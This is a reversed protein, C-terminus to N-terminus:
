AAGRIRDIIALPNGPPADGRWAVHGDPRVLVLCREYLDTIDADDIDITTLPVQRERAAEELACVDPPNSGTRVLVFGHGFLDLMTRSGPTVWADPARAGPRTTATYNERDVPPVPTGDDCIIPSADYRYGVQMGFSPPQIMRKAIGAGVEKREKEGEPSDELLHPRPTVTDSLKFRATAEDVNRKGIPQRETSYSNLLHPGAWGALAAEIKWSLNTVDGIGSNMGFSGSPTLQHVADGALFIRGSQYNDAILQRRVWELKSLIEYKFDCGVFRKLDADVDVKGWSDPDLSGKIQFRWLEKGDIANVDAWQGDPGFARYSRGAGKDHITAFEASRFLVNTSYALVPTGKLTIGLADRIPSHAGECAVVFDARLTESKGSKVDELVATIGDEDQQLDTCRTFYRMSVLAQSSVYTQLTPDFVTQPCRQFPELAGRPPALEDLPPQSNRALEWGTLTTFYIHDHPRDKPYGRDRILKDIGWRRCYEMTRMNVGNTKPHNIIGDGKDVVLCRINRWGLEAAMALGVPGAGVILVPWPQKKIDDATKTM